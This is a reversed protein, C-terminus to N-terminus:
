RRGGDKFQQRVQSAQDASLRWRTYPVSQWGQDRLWQRIAKQPVRLEEALDRPTVEDKVSDAYAVEPSPVLGGWGESFLKPPAFGTWPDPTSEAIIAMPGWVRSRTHLNASALTFVVDLVIVSGCCLRANLCRRVSAPARWQM